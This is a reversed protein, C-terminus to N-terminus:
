ADDVFWSTFAVNGTFGTNVATLPVALTSATVTSANGGDFLIVFLFRGNVPVSSSSSSYYLIRNMRVFLKINKYWGTQSSFNDGPVSFKKYGLRKCTPKFEPAIASNVDTIGSITNQRYFSNVMTTTGTSTDDTWWLEVRGNVRVGTASQQQIYCCAQLGKVFLRNALRTASTAGAAIQYVNSTVDAVNFGAQNAIVQGATIAVAASGPLVRLERPVMKRVTQKVQKKIMGKIGKPRRRIRRPRYSRKAM